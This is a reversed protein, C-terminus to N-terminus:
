NLARLADALLAVFAGRDLDFLVDVNAEAIPISGEAGGESVGEAFSVVTAGTTYLGKCEM